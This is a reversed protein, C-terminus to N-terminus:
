PLWEAGDLQSANALCIASLFFKSTLSLVIYAVEGTWYYTPPLALIVAQVFGFSWFLAVEGYVIYAVFDPVRGSTPDANFRETTDLFTYVILTWVFAQPVYGLVHPVYRELGVKWKGGDPRAILETLHGFFMTTTTLVAIALQLWVDLLFCLQAILVAMVPATFAYEIWRLPATCARIEALYREFRVLQLFHAVATISSFALLLAFLPFDMVEELRSWGVARFDTVTRTLPFAVDPSVLALTLAAMTLHVACAIANLVRLAFPVRAPLTIAKKPVIFSPQADTRGIM